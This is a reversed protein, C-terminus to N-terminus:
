WRRRQRGAHGRAAGAGAAAARRCQGAHPRALLAPSFDAANDYEFLSANNVVCGVPGLADVARPLLARVAAEDALDCQLLAARRGLAAVADARRRAGRGRVHRYHVAVDWGAARWASRSPAASAAAPAPSWPPAHSVSTQQRAHM